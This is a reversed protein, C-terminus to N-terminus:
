PAPQSPPGSSPNWAAEGILDVPHAGLWIAIAHVEDVTLATDGSTKRGAAQRSIGLNEALATITKKQRGM